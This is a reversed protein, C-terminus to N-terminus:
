SAASPARGADAPADLRIRNTVQGASVHTTVPLGTAHILDRVRANGGLSEAVLVRFGQRRADDVILALLRRALGVRHWDPDLAIAFEAEDDDIRVWEAVGVLTSDRFAGLVLRAPGSSEATRTFLLNLPPTSGMFRRYLIESPVRQLADSLSCNDASTMPRVEVTRGDDLRMQVPQQRIDQSTDTGDV